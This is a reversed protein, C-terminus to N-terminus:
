ASSSVKVLYRLGLLGVILMRRPHDSRDGLFARPGGTGRRRCALRRGRHCLGRAWGVALVPLHRGGGTCRISRTLGAVVAVASAIVALVVLSWFRARPARPAGGGAVGARRDCLAAVIGSAGSRASSTRHNRRASSTESAARGCMHSTPRTRGVLGEDAVPIMRLYTRVGRERAARVLSRRRHVPYAAM